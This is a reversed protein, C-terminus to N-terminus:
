ISCYISCRVYHRVPYNYEEVDDAEIGAGHGREGTGNEEGGTEHPIGDGEIGGITEGKKRRKEGIAERRPAGGRNSRQYTRGFCITEM